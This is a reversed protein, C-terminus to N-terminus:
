GHRDLRNHCSGDPAQARRVFSLDGRALKEVISSVPQQRCMVVLARAVDDLCYGGAYRPVIGDAHEFMGLSDTLRLLHEFTPPPVPVRAERLDVATLHQNM